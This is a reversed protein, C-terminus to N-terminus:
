WQIEERPTTADEVPRFYSDPYEEALVSPTRAEITGDPHMLLVTVESEPPILAIAYGPWLESGFWYFGPKDPIIM